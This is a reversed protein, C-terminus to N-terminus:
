AGFRALLHLAYRAFAISFKVTDPAPASPERVREDLPPALKQVDQKRYREPVFHVLSSKRFERFWGRGAQPRKLWGEKFVWGPIGGWGRLYAECVLGSRVTRHFVLIGAHRRGM